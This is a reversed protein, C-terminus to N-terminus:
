ANVDTDPESSDAPHETIPGLPIPKKEAVPEESASPADADGTSGEARRPSSPPAAQPKPDSAESPMPASDAPAASVTEAEVAEVPQVPPQEAPQQEAPAEPAVPQAASSSRHPVDAPLPDGSVGWRNVDFRCFWQGVANISVLQMAVSLVQLMFAVAIAAIVVFLVPAPGIDVLASILEGADHSYSIVGLAGTLLFMTGIIGVIGSVARSILGSVLSVIYTHFFGGFDRAIMQFLRDVRWGAGFSDYLTSRMMAVSIFTGLFLSFVGVVLSTMAGLLGMGYVAGVDGIGPDSLLSGGAGFPFLVSLYTSGFLVVGVLSAIVGMTLSVLFAIGGTTLLKGYNVGRQKPASDVGWATLRAWEYGYGLLVIAGVIPIWGVLALVLIPKIWGKDRTLMKWSSVFGLEHSLM